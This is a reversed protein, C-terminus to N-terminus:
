TGTSLENSYSGYYKNGNIKIYARVKFYYESAATLSTVKFYTSKTTGLCEYQNKSKNYM